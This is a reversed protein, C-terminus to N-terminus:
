AAGGLLAAADRAIRHEEEAQVVHVPVKGAWLLGETIRARIEPSNEGIGGTFALADLGQMASILSGAQRCVWYVFHEVAFRAEPSADALLVRMDASKGSLGLLGSQTNLMADTAAIGDEAALRLVAGADIDGSRTAMVPGSLPSYGMSTAVSRGEVIACLSVGAGLHLALLRRPLAAGFSEVLGAYSLGHFGYRRIGRARIRAPLAYTTAVAPQGAHFATDFSACQPLDPALRNIARIGALAPPTHLPALPACAAIQELTEPTIRCPMRLDPGGQVVRHAVARLSSLPHGADALAALMQAVADDHDATTVPRSRTGLRLTGKGGIGGISGALVPALDAGFLGIKLSSSGTNLVLIM